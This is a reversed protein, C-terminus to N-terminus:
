KNLIHNFHEIFIESNEFLSTDFIMTSTVQKNIRDSQKKETFSAHNEIAKKITDKNPINERYQNYWQRQIKGYITLYNFSINNGNLKYHFDLDIRNETSPIKLCEYFCDWFKTTISSSNIKDGIFRANKNFLQKM